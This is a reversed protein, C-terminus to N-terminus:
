IEGNPLHGGRCNKFRSGKERKAKHAQRAQQKREGAFRIWWQQSFGGGSSECAKSEEDTRRLAANASPMSVSWRGASIRDRECLSAWAGLCNRNTGGRKGCAAIWVKM